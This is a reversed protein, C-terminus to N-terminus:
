PRKHPSFAELLTGNFKVSYRVTSVCSMIWQVWHHSFCIKHMVDELFGWDVHGYAKSLDQKYACLPDQATSGHEM